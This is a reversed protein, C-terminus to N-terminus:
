NKKFFNLKTKKKYFGIRIFFLPLMELLLLKGKLPAEELHKM